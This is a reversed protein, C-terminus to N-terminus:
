IVQKYLCLTKQVTDDWSYDAIIKKRGNEGFRWALDDDNLLTLLADSLAETDEMPVMFGCDRVIHSLHPLHFLVVPLGCAMAELMTRPVGEMLSPLVFIDSDLYYEAIQSNPVNTLIQVNNGINLNNIKQNISEQM